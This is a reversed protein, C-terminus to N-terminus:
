EKIRCPRRLLPPGWTLLLGCFTPSLHLILICHVQARIAPLLGPDSSCGGIHQAGQETAPTVQGCVGGLFLGAPCM